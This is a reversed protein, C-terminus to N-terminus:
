AAALSVAQYRDVLLRAVHTWSSAQRYPDDFAFGLVSELEELSSLKRYGRTEPPLDEFWKVDNTFVPRRAAMATRVAQSSGAMANDDYWLVIVDAGRLWAILEQHTRWEQGGGRIPEHTAVTEFIWGNRECLPRLLDSRTRGLGFTRVVPPRDEIGFPIVEIPGAGVNERHSFRLDFAGHPFDPRLCSDHYTIATPGPFRRALDELPEQNFLMNEFQVHLVDLELSLIRDTDLSYCGDDRWLGIQAVDHVEHESEEAYSRGEDARGALIVPEHGIVHLADALRASHQYIGCPVRWSTLIGVRV